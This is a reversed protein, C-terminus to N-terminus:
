APAMDVFRLQGTNAWNELYMQPGEGSRGSGSEVPEAPSAETSRGVSIAATKDLSAEAEWVDRTSQRRAATRCKGFAGDAV